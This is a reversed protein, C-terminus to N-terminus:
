NSLKKAAIEIESSLDKDGISKATNSADVLLTKAAAVDGRAAKSEALYLTAKAEFYAGGNEKAFQAFKILTKDANAYDKASIYIQGLALTADAFQDLTGAKKQTQVAKIQHEIALDHQGLAKYSAALLEFSEARENDNMALKSGAIYSALATSYDFAKFQVDGILNYDARAYKDNKDTKAVNLSSEYSAIAEPYKQQAKYANGILINGIIHDFSEKSLMEAQKLADLAEDYHGQAGLLRGKCILGDRNKADHKLVEDALQSAAAMDGKNLATNCATNKDSIEDSYCNFNIILLSIFGIALTNQLKM